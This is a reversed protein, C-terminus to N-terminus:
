HADHAGNQLHHSRQAHRQAHQPQLRWGHRNGSGGVRACVDAAVSQVAADQRVRAVSHESLCPLRKRLPENCLPAALLLTKLEAPTLKVGADLCRLTDLPIDAFYFNSLPCHAIATGRKALLALEDDTLTVGHAMVARHTLLGAQEYLQADRGNVQLPHCASGRSLIFYADCACGQVQCTQLCFAHRPLSGKSM